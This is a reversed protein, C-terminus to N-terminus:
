PRGTIVRMERPAGNLAEAGDPTCVVIDEIRVGHRGEIYIGPEISFADGVRALEANGGIVYPEEHVELGIGHGLRHFFREGHGAASIIDRAAADIAGFTVGPRVAARAASQAHETVLHIEM